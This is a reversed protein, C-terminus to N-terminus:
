ALLAAGLAVVGMLLGSQVSLVGAAGVPVITTTPQAPVTNATTPLQPATTPYGGTPYVVTSNYHITPYLKTTSSTTNHVPYSVVVSSSTSSSSTYISSTTAISSSTTPPPTYLPCDPNASNCQTLTVTATLYQTSTSYSTIPSAEYNAAAVGTALAIVNSFRM